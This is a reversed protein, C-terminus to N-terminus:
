LTTLEEIRRYRKKTYHFFVALIVAGTVLIMIGAAIGSFVFGGFAMVITIASGIIM